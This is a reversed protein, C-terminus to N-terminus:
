VVCPLIGVDPHTWQSKYGKLYTPVYTHRKYTTLDPGPHQGRVGQTSGQKDVLCLVEFASFVRNHIIQENIKYEKIRSM